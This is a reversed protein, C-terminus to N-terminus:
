KGMCVCVCVCREIIQIDDGPNVPPYQVKVEVNEGPFIVPLTVESREPKYGGQHVLAVHKWKKTGTNRLIWGKEFQPSCVHIYM